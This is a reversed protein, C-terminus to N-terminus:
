SGILRPIAMPIGDFHSVGGDLSLTVKTGDRGMADTVMREYTMFDEAYELGKVKRWRWEVGALILEDDLLLLDTDANANTYFTTGAADSMSSKSQFEFACTDGATPAPLFLLTNGRIRYESYPSTISVAKYGQWTRDARPGYIPERRTRNWITDNRIYRLERGNTILSALTGQSEAALTTFTQEFQLAQWDYRTSLSRCEQNLLEVLQIISLDTSALAAGPEPIGIANTARQIVELVNM